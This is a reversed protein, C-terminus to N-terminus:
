MQAKDHFNDFNQLLTDEISKSYHAVNFNKSWSLPLGAISVSLSFIVEM